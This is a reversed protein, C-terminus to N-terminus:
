TLEIGHESCTTHLWSRVEQLAVEVADELEGHKIQSRLHDDLISLVCKARPGDVADRFDSDEEPLRFRLTVTPMWADHM